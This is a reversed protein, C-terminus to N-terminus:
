IDIYSIIKGFALVGTEGVGSLFVTVVTFAQLVTNVISFSM